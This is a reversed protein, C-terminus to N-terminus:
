SPWRAHCRCAIWSTVPSTSSRAASAASLTIIAIRIQMSGLGTVYHAWARSSEWIKWCACRATCRTWRYPPSVSVFARTSPRPMPTSPPPLSSECSRPESTPQRSARGAARISSSPSANNSRRATWPSGEVYESHNRHLFHVVLAAIEALTSLKVSPGIAQYPVCMM